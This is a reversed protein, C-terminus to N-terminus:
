AFARQVLGCFQVRRGLVGVALEDYDSRGIVQLGIERPAAAVGAQHGAEETEFTRVRELALEVVEIKEVVGTEAHEARGM